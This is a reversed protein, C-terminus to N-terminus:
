KKFLRAGGMISNIRAAGKLRSGGKKRGGGVYEGAENQSYGGSHKMIDEYSSGTHAETNGGGSINRKYLEGGRGVSSAYINQSGKTSGGKARAKDAATGSVLDLIKEESIQSIKGQNGGAIRANRLATNKIEQVGSPNAFMLESKIEARKSISDAISKQEILLNKYQKDSVSKQIESLNEDTQTKVSGVNSKVNTDVSSPTSSSTNVTKTNKAIYKADQADKQEQTLAAYAKDGATTKKPPTYTTTTTGTGGGTPSNIVNTTLKTGETDMEIKSGSVVDNQPAGKMISNVKAAGKAYGGQRAPGFNQTYGMRSPGEAGKVGDEGLKKLQGAAAASDKANVAGGDKQAAGDKRAIKTNLRQIKKNYRRVGMTKDDRNTQMDSKVQELKEKSRAAGETKAAGKKLRPGGKKEPDEIKPPKAEGTNAARKAARRAADAAKIAARQAAVEAARKKAAQESKTMGTKKIEQADSSDGKQPPDGQAAGKTKNKM